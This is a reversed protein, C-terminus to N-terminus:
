KAQEVLMGATLVQPLQQPVGGGAPYWLYLPVGAVGQATLFRTIVPDRRTWDGVLVQVGAKEFALRTEAREIAVQENVKCTLCWDATFYLFTPKGSARAKSLAPESFPQSPLISDITTAREHYLNPLLLAGIAVVTALGIGFLLAGSKGARQRRGLMELDSVLFLAILGAGGAFWAGGQRWMLWALALATLGMPLAMWHRFTVMWAGPKPMLRRLAPVLAIALFPLAIGLGLAAFLALASAVPLLLAAGM